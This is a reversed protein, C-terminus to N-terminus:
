IAKLMGIILNTLNINKRYTYIFFGDSGLNKVLRACFGM